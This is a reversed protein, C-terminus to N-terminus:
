RSGIVASCFTSRSTASPSFPSSGLRLDGLYEVVQLLGDGRRVWGGRGHLFLEGVGLVEGHHLLELHHEVLEIDDLVQVFGGLAQFPGGLLLDLEDRFRMGVAGNRATATDHHIIAVFQRVLLTVKTSFDGGHELLDAQEHVRLVRIADSCIAFRNHQEGRFLHSANLLGFREGATGSSAASMAGM